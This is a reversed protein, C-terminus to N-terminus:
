KWYPKFYKIEQLTKEYDGNFQIARDDLYITAPYKVSTIDKFYKDIKNEKLWKKTQYKERTTFIVLAYKKDLQKIFEIAGDKIEPLNNKDYYKYNNLVGDFDIMITPKDYKKIRLAFITGGYFTLLLLILIFTIKIYISM